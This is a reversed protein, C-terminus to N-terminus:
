KSTDSLAADILAIRAEDTLYVEGNNELDHRLADLAERLREVEALLNPAAAIKEETVGLPYTEGNYEIETAVMFEYQTFDVECANCHVKRVMYEGGPESDYWDLDVSDCAPCHDAKPTSKTEM